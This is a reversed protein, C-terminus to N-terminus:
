GITINKNIKTFKEKTIIADYFKLNEIIKLLKNIEKEIEVIIENELIFAASINGNEKYDKIKQKYLNKTKLYSIFKNVITKEDLITNKFENIKQETNEIQKDIDNVEKSNNTNQLKIKQNQLKNKEKNLSDIHVSLQNNQTQIYAAVTDIQNLIDSIYMGDKIMKILLKEAEKDMILNHQLLIKNKAHLTIAIKQDNTLDNISVTHFIKQYKSDLIENQSTAIIKINTHNKVRELIDLVDQNLLNINEIFLIFNSNKNQYSFFMKYFINMIKKDKTFALKETNLKYVTHLPLENKKNNFNLVSALSRIILDRFSESQNTLLIFRNQTKFTNIFLTEVVKKIGSKELEELSTKKNQTLKTYNTTYRHIPNIKKILVYVFWTVFGLVMLSIYSLIVLLQSPQYSENVIPPFLTILIIAIILSTTIMYIIKEWIPIKFEKRKFSIHLISVLTILYIVFFVLNGSLLITTFSDSINLLKPLITFIIMALISILTVFKIANKHQGNKAVKALSAPLFGDLALPVVTKAYYVMSFISSTMQRFLLGIAFLILGTTGLVNKMITAVYDGQWTQFSPIFSFLLFFVLYIFIVFGFLYFLIKKFNKTKVSTSLGALGEIGGYAYIFSLISNVIIFPTIKQISSNKVFLHPTPQTSVLYIIVGLILGFIIWKIIASGLIFKKSVHLSFSSIITLTIFFVLSVILLLFQYQENEVFLSAISSFFLPSTASFLPAQMFQNWGNLFWFWKSKTFAEKAYAYSGGVQNGFYQTGRAFALMIGAAIFSTIAFILLSYNGTKIVSQITAIFGFGVIFNIGYFVFSKESFKKTM